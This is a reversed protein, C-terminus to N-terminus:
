TGKDLKTLDLLSHISIGSVKNILQLNDHSAIYIKKGLEFTNM